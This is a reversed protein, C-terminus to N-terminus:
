LEAEEDPPTFIVLKGDTRRVRLGELAPSPVRVVNAQRRAVYAEPSMDRPQPAESM